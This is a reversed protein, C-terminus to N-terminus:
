NKSSDPFNKKQKPVTGGKKAGDAKIKADAKAISDAKAKAISDVKQIKATSDVKKISDQKAKEAKEKTHSLILYAPYILALLLIIILCVLLKRKKLAPKKILSNGKYDSFVTKKNQTNYFHILQVTTNDYGGNNNANNVLSIAKEQIVNKKFLIEAIKKESVMSTLGDSCLLFIDGNSPIAPEKCVSINIKQSIGLAQLIENKRPHNEADEEKIIGQDVLNQVLSHDKTLRILNGSSFLYIRSDGVHAYYVKDDRILLLVITTGMGKLDPNEITYDILHQNASEISKQIASIPDDYFSNEFFQKINEVALRSAAAGAVHGGMGDCVVFVHGNVTDFYGLYDENQERVKGVDTSNGFEFSKLNKTKAM